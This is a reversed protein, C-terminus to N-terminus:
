MAVALPLGRAPRRRGTPRARHCVPLRRRGRCTALCQIAVAAAASVAQPLTSAALAWQCPSAPQFEVVPMASRAAAWGSALCLERQSAAAADVPRTVAGVWWLDQLACCWCSASARWAARWATATAHQVSCSDIRTLESSGRGLPSAAQPQAVVSSTRRSESGGKRRRANLICAVVRELLESCDQPDSTAVAGGTRSSRGSASEAPAPWLQADKCAAAPGSAYGPLGCQSLRSTRNSQGQM